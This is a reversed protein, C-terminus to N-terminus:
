GTIVNGPAFIGRPDFAEKVSRMGALATEDYLVRLLEGKLKGIGHEAVVTGGRRVAWEAWQLHLAKAKQLGTEDTPLMNVHLNNDGIHGFIVAPIDAERLSRRYLAVLEELYPDPVALDTGVKHVAPCRKRNEGVRLNVAEPVLHRMSKLKSHEKPDVASWVQEMSSGYHSLAAAWAEYVMDLEAERGEQEFFIGAGAKQPIEPLNLERRKPTENFLQLAAGDFYELAVPRCGSIAGDTQAATAAIGPRENRIFRVFRVAEAESAFFALGGFWFEPEVRVALELEVIAGLLGESGILLDIPDLEAQNYFGATHKVLPIRYGPAPITLEKGSETKLHLRGDNGAKTQGRRLNLIEGDALVMQAARAYRRFAGYGFSRAGSANTAAMGGLSATSETADVPFFFRRPDKQFAGLGLPIRSDPPLKESLCKQFAALSVGPEVRIVWEDCYSDYRFEKIQNMRELSLVTGGKPVAGGVIGTRAGSITVKGGTAANSKLFWATEAASEPFVVRGAEGGAMKSEDRLYDDFDATLIKLM